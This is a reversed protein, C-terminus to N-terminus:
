REGKLTRQAVSSRRRESERARVRMARSKRRGATWIRRREMKTAIIGERQKVLTRRSPRCCIGAGSKVRGRRARQASLPHFAATSRPARGYSALSLRSSWRSHLLRATMHQIRLRPRAYRKSNRTRRRTPRPRPTRTTPTPSLSTRRGPSTTSSARSSISTTRMCATPLTRRRRPRTAQKTDEM